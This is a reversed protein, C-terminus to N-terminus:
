ALASGPWESYRPLDDGIVLWPRKQSVWVHCMPAIGAPDDITALTVDVHDPREAHTYTLPSGCRPCFTRRVPPSSAHEAPRGQTFTLAGKDFTAWGVLPAGSSMTCSRCHCYAAFIAAGTVRYRVEGCLCGGEYRETTMGTEAM